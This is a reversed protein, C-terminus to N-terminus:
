PLPCSSSVALWELSRVGVARYGDPFVWTPFPGLFDLGAARCAPVALVTDDAPFCDTYPVDAADPGFLDLQRHCPGCWSAGYLRIGKRALCRALTEDPVDPLPTEPRREPISPPASPAAACAALVLLCAPRRTM